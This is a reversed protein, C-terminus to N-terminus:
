MQFVLLIVSNQLKNISNKVRMSGSDYNKALGLNVTSICRVLKQVVTATKPLNLIWEFISQLKCQNIIPIDNSIRLFNKGLNSRENIM